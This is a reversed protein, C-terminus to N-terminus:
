AMQLNLRSLFESEFFYRYVQNAASDAIWLSEADLALASPQRLSQMLALTSLQNNSTGLKRISGNYADAIWIAGRKDDAALARPHQLTASQRPGDLEGFQYLGQGVLTNIRGEPVAVTRISSSSGEAVYLQSRGSSLALPHAMRAREGVGDLLGLSGSGALTSFDQSALNYMVLRNNGADAVLLTEDRMCVAMPNNLALPSGADGAGHFIGPKGNGLVTDVSGDRLNIRRIAHNGTDAVYLHGRHVDMGAPRSFCADGAPGDLFVSIGNGLVRRVRGDFSCELVRHHGTDAIYLTDETVVLGGPCSLLTSPKHRPRVHLRAPKPPVACARAVLEQAATEIAPLQDDGIFDAVPLGEHDILVTTPWSQLAYHQWATWDRDNAVPLHIDLRSLADQLVEIDREAEFKPLHVTLVSLADPSRRQLAAFAHLLNHCYVSSASWFLLVVVRGRHAALRQPEANVWELTDSLEYAPPPGM